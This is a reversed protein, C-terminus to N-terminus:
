KQPAKLNPKYKKIFKERAENFSEPLVVPRTKSVLRVAQATRSNVDHYKDIAKAATEPTAYERLEGKTLGGVRTVFKGTGTPALTAKAKEAEARAMTASLITTLEKQSFTYTTGRTTRVLRSGNRGALVTAIVEDTGPLVRGRLYRETSSSPYSM